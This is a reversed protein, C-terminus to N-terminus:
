HIQGKYFIDVPWGKRQSYLLAECGIITCYKGSSGLPHELSFAGDNFNVNHTM